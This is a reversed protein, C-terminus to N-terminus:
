RCRAEVAALRAELAMGFERLPRFRQRELKTELAGASSEPPGRWTQRRWSEVAAPPLAERSLPNATKAPEAQNVIWTAM